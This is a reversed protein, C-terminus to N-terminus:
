ATEIQTKMKEFLKIMPYFRTFLFRILATNLPGPLWSRGDLLMHFRTRQGNALPELRGTMRMTIGMALLRQELTLYDFPNWDLL